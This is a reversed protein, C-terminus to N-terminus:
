WCAWCAAPEVGPPHSLRCPGLPRRGDVGKARSTCHDM